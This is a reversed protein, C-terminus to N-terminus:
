AEVLRSRAPVRCIPRPAAYAGDFRGDSAFPRSPEDYTLGVQRISLQRAMECADDLFHEVEARSFRGLRTVTEVTVNQASFGMERVAEAMDQVISTGGRPARVKPLSAPIAKPRYRIM